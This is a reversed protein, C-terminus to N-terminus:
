RCQSSYLPSPSSKSAQESKSKEYNSYQSKPTAVAERCAQYVAGPVPAAGIAQRM